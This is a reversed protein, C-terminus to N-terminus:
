LHSSDAKATVLSLAPLVDGQLLPGPVSVQNSLWCRGSSLSSLFNRFLHDFNEELFLHPYVGVCLFLYNFGQLEINQLLAVFIKSHFINFSHTVLHEDWNRFLNLLTDVTYRGKLLTIEHPVM